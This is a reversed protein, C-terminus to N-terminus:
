PSKEPNTAALFEEAGENRTEKKLTPCDGRVCASCHEALSEHGRFLELDRGGEGRGWVSDGGHGGLRGAQSRSGVSDM